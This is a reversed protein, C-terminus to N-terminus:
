DLELIRKVADYNNSTLVAYLFLKGQGLSFPLEKKGEQKATLHFGEAASLLISSFNVKYVAKRSWINTLTRELSLHLNLLRKLIM